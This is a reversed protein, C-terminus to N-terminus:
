HPADMGNLLHQVIDGHPTEVVDESCNSQTVKGTFTQQTLDYAGATTRTCTSQNRNAGDTRKLDVTTTLSLTYQDSASGQKLSGSTTISGNQTSNRDVCDTFTISSALAGTAVTYSGTIARTGGGQCTMTENISVDTTPITAATPPPPDGPPPGGRDGAAQVTCAMLGMALFVPLHHARM